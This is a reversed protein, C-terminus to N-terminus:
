DAARLRLMTFEIQGGPLQRWHEVVTMYGNQPFQKLIERAKLRAVHVPLRFRERSLAGDSEHRESTRKAINNPRNAM